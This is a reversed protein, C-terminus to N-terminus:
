KRPKVFVFRDDSRWYLHTAGLVSHLWPYEGREIRFVRSIDSRDGIANMAITLQEGHQQNKYALRLAPGVEPPCLELGREQARTYIDSLSAGGRFGLRAVFVIVLDVELAQTACTFTPDDLITCAWNSVQCKHSRLAKRYGGSSEHLGLTITKWVNFNSLSEERKMESSLAHLPTLVEELVRRLAKPNQIWGQMVDSSMEPMCTAVTALFKATQSHYTNASM